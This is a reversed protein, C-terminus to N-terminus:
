GRITGRSNGTVIRDGRVWFRSAIAQSTQMIEDASLVRSYHLWAYFPGQFWEGLSDYGLYMTGGVYSSLLGGSKPSTYVLKGGLYHRIEGDAAGPSSPAVVYAAVFPVGSTVAGGIGPQPTASNYYSFISSGSVHTGLYLQGGGAGTRYSVNARQGNIAYTPRVAYIITCDYTRIRDNGTLDIAVRQSSGDLSLAGRAEGVFPTGPTIAGNFRGPSALNFWTNGTGPYSEPISADLYAELSGTAISRVTVPGPATYLKATDAGAELTRIHKGAGAVYATNADTVSATDVNASVTTGTVGTVNSDSVTATDTNSSRLTLTVANSDAASATDTNASAFVRTVANSDAVSATDTNSTFAGVAATNSDSVSATDTHVAKLSLANSDSVSAPDTHVATLVTANSDSVSATDTNSSTTGGSVEATNSDTVSATDTHAPRFVQTVANSDSVSASDTNSSYSGVAATNSDSVSATDTHVSARANANSDSVSATDTHVATLSLVNSDSVSASDTHVAVRLTANSDAASATDTHVVVRTNANSDSVSATDTNSSAYVITVTNSDTVSATDTNSVNTSGGGAASILILLGGLYNM